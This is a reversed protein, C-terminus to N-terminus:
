EPVEEFVASIDYTLPGSANASWKRCLFKGALGIPPTWDFSEIGGRTKLFTRILNTEAISRVDFRLSWKLMDNNIGDGVRQEYGDGFSNSLNRPESDVQANYSPLWTFPLSLAGSASSTAVAISSLGKAVSLTGSASAHAAAAGALDIIAM